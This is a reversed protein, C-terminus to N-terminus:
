TAWSSRRRRSRSREDDARASRPRGQRRADKLAMSGAIKFAMEYSDVEHYSGDILTSRSTSWRTTRSCARKSRRASARARDATIYERPITGGVIKDEFEFGTGQECRSSRSCSTATSAAAAPRACSAARARPRAPTITERYAVQPRGVNADVHFERMMRDVICRSTCSAWAPSSRRARRRTPRSGSPRTRRPSSSSRSAWRTRTPRRRRSSPSTSSRSPSPSRRSSRDPPGRRVAHRRHLHGEPRRDRRHRGRLGRDIEERHNAHMQLLRGIRERKGKRRTTARVLGGQAHGLLGPHLGAQRRVPRDVIKFALASFPESDDATQAVEERGHAPQHGRGAARRAAVAPLRGGRRADAPRGQEQARQRVPDPGAQAAITAQRLAAKLEDVSITRAKSTASSDARRRDRRDDRDPQRPARSAAEDAPRGPDDSEDIRTTEADDGFTLAKM